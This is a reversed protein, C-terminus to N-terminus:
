WGAAMKKTMLQHIRDVPNQKSSSVTATTGAVPGNIPNYPVNESMCQDM